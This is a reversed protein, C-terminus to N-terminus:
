VQAGTEFSRFVRKLYDNTDFALDESNLFANLEKVLRESYADGSACYFPRWPEPSLVSELATFLVTDKVISLAGSWTIDKREGLLVPDSVDGLLCGHSDSVSRTYSIGYLRSMGKSFPHGTWDICAVQFHFTHVPNNCTAKSM